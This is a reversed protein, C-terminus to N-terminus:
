FELEPEDTASNGNTILTSEHRSLKINLDPIYLVYMGYGSVEMIIAETLIPKLLDRPSAAYVKVRDNIQYM